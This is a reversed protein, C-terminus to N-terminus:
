TAATKGKVLAGINVDVGIRQGLTTLTWEDLLRRLRTEVEAADELGMDQGLKTDACFGGGFDADRFTNKRSNGFVEVDSAMNLVLRQMQYTNPVTELPLMDSKARQRMPRGRRQHDAESRQRRMLYKRPDIEFENGDADRPKPLSTTSSELTRDDPRQLTHAEPHNARENSLSGTGDCGVRDIQHHDVQHIVHSQANRSKRAAKSGGKGHNDKWPKRYPPNSRSPVDDVHLQAPQTKPKQSLKTGGFSITTQVLGDPGTNGRTHEHNPRLTPLPHRGGFRSQSQAEQMAHLLSVTGSNYELTSHSAISPLYPQNAPHTNGMHMAHTPQLNGALGGYPQLIPLNDFSEEAAHDVHLARSPISNLADGEPVAIGGLPQQTPVISGGMTWPNPSGVARERNRGRIQADPQDCLHSALMEAEEDSSMVLDGLIDVRPADEARSKLNSLAADTNEVEVTAAERLDEQVLTCQAHRRVPDTGTHSAKRTHCIESSRSGRTTTPPQRPNGLCSEYPRVPQFARRNDVAGVTAVTSELFNPGHYYELCYKQTDPGVDEPPGDSSLPPTQTRPGQLLRRTELTVFADRKQPTRYVETCLRGFLDMLRSESAFIVQNKSPEINVDYSGPSCRINVCIFPDRPCDHGGTESLARALFSKFTKLLKKMTGSSSTLPRSDVAFFAGKNSIKSLDGDASPFVAQISIRESHQTSKIEEDDRGSVITRIMCQSIVETGLVQIVAERVTAQPRPSYSWKAKGGLSKFSLRIGPRALAYEQLLQKIKSINKPADKIATRVRVPFNSYLGTVSVTTGVPAPVRQKNDMGGVGARLTMLIATQDMSTRTTVTVKGSSNASALAQGRFGLTSGGLSPIEDFSIIKSTHGTRGLSDYDEENIGNGNDQVEIKDVLNPAARIEVSTAKADIANDLLEKVLDVPTTIVTSSGLLRVTDQSLAAIVM